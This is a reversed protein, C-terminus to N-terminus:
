CSTAETLRSAGWHHGCPRLCSATPQAPVNSPTLFSTEDMPSHPLGARQRPGPASLGPPSAPLSMVPAPCPARSPLPLKTAPGGSHSTSCGTDPPRRLRPQSTVAPGNAEAPVLSWILRKDLGQGLTPGLPVDPLHCPGTTASIISSHLWM